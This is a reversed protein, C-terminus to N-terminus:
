GKIGLKKLARKKMTGLKLLVVSAWNDSGLGSESICKAIEQSWTRDKRVVGYWAIFAAKPDLRNTILILEKTEGWAPNTYFDSFIVEKKVDSQFRGSRLVILIPFIKELPVGEGVLIDVLGFEILNKESYVQPAGKGRKKQVEPIIPLRDGWFQVTRLPKGLRHAIEKRKLEM